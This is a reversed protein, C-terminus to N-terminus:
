KSLCIRLGHGDSRYDPSCHTRASVRCYWNNGSWGGGRLIRDYGSSPGQPNTQFDNNYTSYWDSCWEWVNGSLDYIGLENPLKTKVARTGDYITTEMYWAVDKINNSGAYKYGKSLNGGKAAYEWEAETPMRFNKGTVKNLKRIFEQCDDWNVKEVPSNDEKFHSPNDGMIAKWLAQTVETEGIYFTSVTVNHIPKESDMAYSDDGGMQYTGGQVFKMVFSVGKVTFALDEGALVTEIIPENTTSVDKANTRQPNICGIFALTFAFTVLILTCLMHRLTCM